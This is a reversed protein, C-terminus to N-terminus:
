PQPEQFTHHAVRAEFGLDLMGKPGQVIGHCLNLFQCASGFSPKCHTFCPRYDTLESMTMMRDLEQEMTNRMTDVLAQRIYIPASVALQEDLMQDDLKSYYDTLTLAFTACLDKVNIRNWGRVYTASWTQGNTYATVFPSYRVGAREVGKNFAVVNVWDCSGFLERIALAGLQIQVAYHFSELYPGSIGSSTKWEFYGIEGTQKHRVVIDPRVWLRHSGVTVFMEQEVCLIDYGKLILPLMRDGFVMVQFFALLGFETAKEPSLGLNVAAQEADAFAVYATTEIAGTGEGCLTQIGTHVAKGVEFHINGKVPQLGPTDAGPVTFVRGWYYARPCDEYLDWGSRDIDM